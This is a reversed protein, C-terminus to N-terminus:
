TGKGYLPCEAEGSSHGFNGCRFCRVRRTPAGLPVGQPQEPAPRADDDDKVMGPPPTYMFDLSGREEVRKREAEPLLALRHM